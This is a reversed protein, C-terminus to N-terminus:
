FKLTYLEEETGFSTRHRVVISIITGESSLSKYKGWGFIPAPCAIGLPFNLKIGPPFGLDRSNWCIELVQQSGSVVIVPLSLASSYNSGYWWSLLEGELASEMEREEVGVWGFGMEVVACPLSVVSIEMQGRKWGKVWKWSVSFTSHSFLSGLDCIYIISFPLLM